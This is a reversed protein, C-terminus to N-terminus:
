QPLDGAQGKWALLSGRSKLSLQSVRLITPLTTIRSAPKVSCRYSDTRQLALIALQHRRFGIPPE